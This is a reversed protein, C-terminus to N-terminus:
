FNFIMVIFFSFFDVRRFGYEFLSFVYRFVYGRIFGLVGVLRLM